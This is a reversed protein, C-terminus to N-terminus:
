RSRRYSRVKVTITYGSGTQFTITNNGTMSEVSVGSRIFNSNSRQRNGDVPTAKPLLGKLIQWANSIEKFKDPDGGKDPHHIKCLERYSSKGEDFTSEIHLDLTNLASLILERQTFM